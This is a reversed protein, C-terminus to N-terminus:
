KFLERAMVQTKRHPELFAETGGIHEYERTTDLALRPDIIPVDKRRSNLLANRTYIGQGEKTLFWNVFLRAANPHPARNMAYIGTMQPIIAEPIDIHKLNQGLGQAKFDDLIADTVGYGMAYRGQALWQSLQRVDRSIVPEQDILLQKVVEDGLKLRIGTLPVSTSGITRPDALIIKGKWKPNLLDRASQVEGDRVLDTNVLIAGQKYWNYSYGWKKANDAFGFEFGKHWVTDDVVDPRFLVPRIPDIAGAPILSMLTDNISLAAVDWTYVGANREQIVRPAFLSASAFTTVEVTVGPFAQEFSEGIKRYGAGAGTFTVALKGEQKAADVLRDWQQEWAAKAAPAPAAGSAPAAPPPSASPACAAVFAAAGTLGGIRIFRRRSPESVHQSTM